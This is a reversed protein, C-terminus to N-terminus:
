ICLESELFNGYYPAALYKETDHPGILNNGFVGCRMDVSFQDQLHHGAVEYPNEHTWSHSNRTSAIGDWAFETEDM